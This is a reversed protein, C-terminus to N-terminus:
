YSSLDKKLKNYAAADDPNLRIAKNLDEIARDYEGKYGYTVGRIKYAAAYDPNLQIAQSLEEVGRDYEGKRIYARGRNTHIWALAVKQFQSRLESLKPQTGSCLSRIADELDWEILIGQRTM